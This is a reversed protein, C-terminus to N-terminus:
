RPFDTRLEAEVVGRAWERQKQHDSGIVFFAIRAHGSAGPVAAPVESGIIAQASNDFEAVKVKFRADEIDSFHELFAAWDSLFDSAAIEGPSAFFAPKAIWGHSAIWKSVPKITAPESPFREARLQKPFFEATKELERNKTDISLELLDNALSESLEESVELSHPDVSTPSPAPLQATASPVSLVAATALLCLVLSHFKTV